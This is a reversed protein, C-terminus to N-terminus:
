TKRIPNDTKQHLTMPPPVNEIVDSSPHITAQCLYNYQPAEGNSTGVAWCTHNLLTFQFTQGEKM